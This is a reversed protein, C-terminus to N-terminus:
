SPVEEDESSEDAANQTKMQLFDILKQPDQGTSLDIIDVPLGYQMYPSPQVGTADAIFRFEPLADRPPTHRNSDTLNRENYYLTNSDETDEITMGGIEDEIVRSLGGEEDRSQQLESWSFLLGDTTEGFPNFDLLLVNDKAPRYVDFVYDQLPFRNEINERWFSIIDSRINTRDGGICSYSQSVDRQSIGVLEKNRVFCRFEYSPNIDMWKRLILCYDVHSDAESSDDCDQFPATLDHTVFSSSKLLLFVDGPTCCRLSNNFAIWSADKPASWNLKPFVSGGLKTIADRIKNTFDELKPGEVCGSTECHDWDQTAEEPMPGREYTLEPQSGEPLVLTGNDQLYTLVEATLPM